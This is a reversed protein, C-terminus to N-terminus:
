QKKILPYLVGLFTNYEHDLIGLEESYKLAFRVEKRNTDIKNQLDGM